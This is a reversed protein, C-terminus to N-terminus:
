KDKLLKELYEIKDKEAQILREYLKEKEEYLEVVKDLPNFTPQINIANITSNDHSSIVNLITEDSYNKIAEATVGLAKAIEALKTDDITECWAFISIAPTIKFMPGGNLGMFKAGNLEFMAVMPNNSTTKSNKFIS